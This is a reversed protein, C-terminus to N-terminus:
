GHIIWGAALDSSSTAILTIQAGSAFTILTDPGAPSLTYTVAPALSIRDGEAATFDSIRDHGTTGVFYFTDSGAGGILTDDGLDGSLFDNGDEGHLLDNDQGGLLRDDGRGGYNTDTGINGYVLDAGDDGYLLDAGKGGIVWDDGDRGHITDAGENGHTNDWGEGGEISDAGSGGWLLNSGSGGIMLDDGDGGFLQDDGREGELTDNGADGLLVDTGDGARVHDNGAAAAIKDDKATGMLRDNLITPLGTDSLIALDLASVEYDHGVRFVVGNMLDGLLDPSSGSHAVHYLNGPTLPVPGGYLAVAQPGTFFPQGDVMQVFADFSSQYGVPAQGTTWHRYGNFGLAHGLEHAIVEVLDSRNKPATSGDLPNVWYFSALADVDFFVEVDPASGNPDQGTRLEFAAGADVIAIGSDDLARTAGALSRGGGRNAYNTVLHFHIEINSGNDGLYPAWVNFGAVANAIMLEAQASYRGTPDTFTATASM